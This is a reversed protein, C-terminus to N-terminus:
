LKFIQLLLRSSQKTDFILFWWTVILQTRSHRVHDIGSIHLHILICLIVYHEQIM